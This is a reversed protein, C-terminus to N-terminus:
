VHYDRRLKLLANNRTKSVAQQSVNLKAAIEIDKMEEVISWYLVEKQRETLKRVAKNLTPDQIHDELRCSASSEHNSHDDALYQSFVLHEDAPNVSNDLVLKYRKYHKRIKADFKKAEFHIIKSLYSIMRVEYYFDAFRKNLLEKTEPSPQRCYDDYLKRNDGKNLFNLLLPNTIMNKNDTM